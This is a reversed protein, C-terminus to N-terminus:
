LVIRTICHYTDETSPLICIICTLVLMVAPRYLTKVVVYSVNHASDTNFTKYLHQYNAICANVADEGGGLVRSLLLPSSFCGLQPAHSDFM